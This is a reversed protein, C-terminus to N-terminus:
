IAPGPIPAPPKAHAPAIAKAHDTIWIVPAPQGPFDSFPGFIVRAYVSASRDLSGTGGIVGSWGQGPALKTPPKSSFRTATAFGVAHTLDTAHRSSWFGVGFENGVRIPRKTLNRFSVRASWSTKGFTLSAVTYSMVPKGAIKAKENWGLRAAGGAPIALLCALAASVGLISVTLRASVSWNSCM